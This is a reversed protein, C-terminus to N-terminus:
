YMMVARNQAYKAEKMLDAASKPTSYINQTINYTENKGGSLNSTGASYASTDFPLDFGSFSGGFFAIQAKTGKKRLNDVQSALLDELEEHTEPCVGDPGGHM